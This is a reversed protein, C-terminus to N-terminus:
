PIVEIAPAFAVAFAHAIAGFENDSLRALDVGTIEAGLAGAVRTINM